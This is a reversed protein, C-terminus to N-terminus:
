CQGTAKAGGKHLNAAHGIPTKIKENEAGCSEQSNSRARVSNQLHKVITQDIGIAIHAQQADLLSNTTTIQRVQDITIIGAFRQDDFPRAQDIGENKGQRGRQRRNQAPMPRQIDTAHGRLRQEGASQTSAEGKRDRRNGLALEQPGGRNDSHQEGANAAELCESFHM